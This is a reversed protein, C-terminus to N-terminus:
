GLEDFDARWVSSAPPISHRIGSRNDRESDLIKEGYKVSCVVFFLVLGAVFWRQQLIAHRPLPSSCVADM